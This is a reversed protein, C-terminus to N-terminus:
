RFVLSDALIGQIFQLFCDSNISLSWQLLFHDLGFELLEDVQLVPGGDGGPEHLNILLGIHNLPLPHRRKLLDIICTHVRRDVQLLRFHYRVFHLLLGFVYNVFHLLLAAPANYACGVGADFWPLLLEPLLASLFYFCVDIGVGAYCICIMVDSRISFHPKSEGFIERLLLGVYFHDLGNQFIGLQRLRRLHQQGPWDDGQRRDFADLVRLVLNFVTLHFLSRHILTSVPNNQLGLLGLVVGHLPERDILPRLLRQRTHALALDTLPRRFLLFSHVADFADVRPGLADVKLTQLLRRLFLLDIM